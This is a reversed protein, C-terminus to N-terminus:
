HGAEVLLSISTVSRGEGKGWALIEAMVENSQRGAGGIEVWQGYPASLRTAAETFRIVGRQTGAESVRPIIKLDAYHTLFTPKVEMGTQIRQLTITESVRSYKRTFDLWRQTFLLDQGVMIYAPSGSLVVVSFESHGHETRRRDGVRIDVGERGLPGGATGSWDRGSARARVESSRDERSGTEEFRVRITGQRGPRDFADLFERVRQISAEDDELLLANTRPDAVARGKSSLLERVMPLAEIAPRYQMPFVVIEAPAAPVMCFLLLFLVPVFFRAKCPNKM